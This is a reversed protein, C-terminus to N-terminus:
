QMRPLWLGLSASLTGGLVFLTALAMLAAACLRAMSKGHDIAVFYLQLLSLPVVVYMSIALVNLFPGTFTAPDFGAPRQHIALWTMLGIRFFWVGGAVVFLRLAWRRHSAFQRSRAARWALTACCVILVANISIALHQTLDGVVGGRVWVLWLGGLALFFAGALYVRGNWRHFAPAHRRFYPLLQLAGGLIFAVAVLFHLGLVASGVPDTADYGRPLVKNWREYEGDIVAGGYFISVYAAFVFQGMVISALCLMGIRNLIRGSTAHWRDADNAPRGQSVATTSAVQQASTM